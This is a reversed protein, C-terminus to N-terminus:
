TMTELPSGKFFTLILQCKSLIDHFVLPFGDKGPLTDEKLDRAREIPQSLM